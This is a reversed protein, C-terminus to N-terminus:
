GRSRDALPMVSNHRILVVVACIALSREAALGLDDVDVGSRGDGNVTERSDGSGPHQADVSLTDDVVSVVAVAELLCQGGPGVLPDFIIAQSEQDQLALKSKVRSNRSRTQFKQEIYYMAEHCLITNM